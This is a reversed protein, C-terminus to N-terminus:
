EKQETGYAQKGCRDAAGTMEKIMVAADEGTDLYHGERRGAECFGLTRYLKIAARNSARVELLAKQVGYGKALRLCNELLCTAVGRRRYVADVALNTIYTKNGLLRFCLYAIVRAPEEQQVKKIVLCHSTEEALEEEFSAKNWPSPFSATEIDLLRDIDAKALGSM